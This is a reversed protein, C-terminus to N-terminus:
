LAKSVVSRSELMRLIEGVMASLCFVSGTVYLPVAYSGSLEFLWGAIPAGVTAAVGNFFSMLGFTSTLSELGFLDALLPAYTNYYIGILLGYCATNISFMVMDSCLAFVFTCIGILIRGINCLLLSNIQPLDM